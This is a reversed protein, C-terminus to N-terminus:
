VNSPTHDAKLLGYEKLYKLPQRGFIKSPGNKFVKVWINSIHQNFDVKDDLQLGLLKLSSMVKIQQNDVTIRQNTNDSKRKYLIIALFKDPNM